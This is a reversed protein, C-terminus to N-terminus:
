HLKMCDEADLQFDEDTGYKTKHARILSLYHELLSEKGYVRKGDPRGALEMQIKPRGDAGM